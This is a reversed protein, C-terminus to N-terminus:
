VPLASLAPLVSSFGTQHGMDTPNWLLQVHTEMVLVPRSRGQSLAGLTAWGLRPALCLLFVSVKKLKTLAIKELLCNSSFM